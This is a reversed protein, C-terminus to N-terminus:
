VEVYSFESNFTKSVRFNKLSIDILQGFSKNPVPTYIESSDQQYDKSSDLQYGISVIIYHILVVETIEIHLM